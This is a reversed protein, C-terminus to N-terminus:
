KTKKSTKKKLHVRAGRSICTDLWGQGVSREESRLQGFEFRLEGIRRQIGIATRAGAFHSALLRPQALLEFMGFHGQESKVVGGSDQRQVSVLSSGPVPRGATSRRGAPSGARM